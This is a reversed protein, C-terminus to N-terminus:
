GTLSTVGVPESHVAEILHWRRPSLQWHMYTHSHKTAFFGSTRHDVLEGEQGGYFRDLLADDDVREPLELPQDFDLRLEGSVRDHFSAWPHGALAQPLADHWLALLPDTQDDPLVLHLQGLFNCFLVAAGDHADFLAKLGLTDGSTFHDVPSWILQREATLAASHRKRFLRPALPDPDVAVIRTFRALFSTDLCYGASPGILILTTTPTEWRDLWGAVAGRFPAWLSEAHRLARTHYVLGGAPGTLSMATCSRM